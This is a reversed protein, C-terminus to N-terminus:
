KLNDSIVDQKKQELMDSFAKNRGGDINNVFLGPAASWPIKGVSENPKIKGQGLALIDSPKLSYSSSGKYFAIKDSKALHPHIELPIKFGHEYVDAAPVKKTGKDAVLGTEAKVTTKIEESM